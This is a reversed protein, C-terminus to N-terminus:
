DERFMTWTTFVGDVEGQGVVQYGFHEYLSVNEEVETTLSVGRSAADELSMAHTAELLDRAWGRGQAAQRVGIMNLHIHDVVIEIAGATTM